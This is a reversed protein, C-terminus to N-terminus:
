LNDQFELLLVSEYLSNRPHEADAKYHKTTQKRSNKVRKSQPGM